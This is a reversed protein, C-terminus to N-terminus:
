KADKPLDLGSAKEGPLKLYRNLSQVTKGGKLVYEAIVYNDGKKGLYVYCRQKTIKDAEKTLEYYNKFESPSVEVSTTKMSCCGVVLVLAACCVSVSLLLKRKM